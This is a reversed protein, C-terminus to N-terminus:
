LHFVRKFDAHRERLRKNVFLLLLSISLCGALAVISWSLISGTGLAFHFIIELGTLFIGVALIGDAMTPIVPLKLSRAVAAAGGGIVAALLTIPLALRLFWPDGAIIVDLVYLLALVDITAAAYALPLDRGLWILVTLLVWVFGLGSLPYISWSLDFGYAFDAAAVILGAAGTVLSIVEWLWLRAGRGAHAVGTPRERGPTGGGSGNDELEPVTDEESGTFLHGCLPCRQLDDEIEVGCNTCQKM